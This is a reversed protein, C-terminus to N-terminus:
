YERSAESAYRHRNISTLSAKEIWHNFSLLGLPWTHCSHRSGRVERRAVREVQQKAQSDSLVGMEFSTFFHYVIRRFNLRAPLSAPM